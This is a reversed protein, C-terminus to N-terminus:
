IIESISSLKKKLEYLKKLAEKPSLEDPELTHLFDFLRNYKQVMLQQTHKSTSQTTSHNEFVNKNYVTKETPDNKFPSFSSHKLKELTAKAQLLVEQPLGALKAVQLGYSKNTSGQEVKHLFILTGENDYADLHVNQVNHFSQAWQTLEFYHTSFLTFSQLTQSLAQACSFALALGDFTSTGRGIEDIIVLSHPTAYHLIHATETMEVMFTSQGQSIEDHAGIRTFIRDIPGIIASQAPVFSGTHALLVILATQRMYTSKGGMNPGTILLMKKAENLSLDNPIFPTDSLAEVIPHRGQQIIIESKKSLTPCQYQLTRAREALTSLVDITALTHASEQMTHLPILLQQLLNEYLIKERELAKEKSSLVKEEFQKLEPTIYREVNKLTQRRQYEKPAYAAQGKSLEIYFGHVRNYGVKLTSLKTRAQEKQELKSLFAQADQSASRLSDLVPDYGTAIVGGDRILLSPHEELANQLLAAIKEHTPFKKYTDDLCPLTLLLRKIVPFTQLAQKLKILDKPRASQLAIRALVREIDGIKKLYEHLQEAKEFSLLTAIANQRKKLTTHSRLPQHLWRALLRSGMPTATHDLISLLTHEKKGSRHQTLALHTRTHADLQIYDQPSEVQLRRIHPLASRQTEHVYRLVCGAAQIALHLHKGEFANLNKTQFQACLQRTATAYDFDWAPRKHILTSGLSLSLTNKEEILLEAPTLRRLENYLASTGTGEQIVFQGTSLELWAIGFQTKHEVICALINEQKSELFAEETLTGPTLIRTVKRELPGKQLHPEGIQECIAVSEGMKLLKALYNEAAHFPVGAMPIPKGSSHGRQTLTIDLLTAAKQADEYFLEYFDGMRYFLLQTPHAEKIKLYQQMMPTHEAYPTPLTNKIQKTM